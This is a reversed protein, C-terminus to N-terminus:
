TNTLCIQIKHLLDNYTSVMSSLYVRNVAGSGLSVQDTYWIDDWSNTDHDYSQVTVSRVGGIEGDLTSINTFEVCQIKYDTEYM